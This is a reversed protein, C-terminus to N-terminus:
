KGVEGNIELKFVGKIDGSVVIIEHNGVAKIPHALEIMDADIYISADKKLTEAIEEKHIGQFLHGEKNAKGSMTIEVGRLAEINKHLLEEQLKREGEGRKLLIEANKVKSKNAIEALKRPFLFNQAYGSSVEKVEYKRGVKTIDTLLIVKM